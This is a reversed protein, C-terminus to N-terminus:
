ASMHREEKLSDFYKDVKELEKVTYRNLFLEAFNKTVSLPVAQYDLTCSGGMYDPLNDKDITSTINRKNRFQILQKEEEPVMAVVLKQIGSLIWPIEYVMIYKVGCPYYERLTNIFFLMMDLQVNAFGIGSCDFVVAWGQMENAMKDLVHIKYSLFRKLHEELLNCKRILKIRMYLLPTGENDGKYIFLGGTKYFELPFSEDTLHLVNDKRWKFCRKLKDFCDQENAIVLFRQIYLDSCRIYENVDDESYQDRHEAFHRLFRDRVRDIVVPDEWLKATRDVSTQSDCRPAM